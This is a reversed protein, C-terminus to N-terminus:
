TGNSKKLQDYEDKSISKFQVMDGMQILSNQPSSLNFIEIPTRGILNWGGPSPFPYIGTQGGAIAVSGQPVRKRPTQLRPTTLEQDMGGIYPFGPSFGLFYVLYNGSQHRQIIEGESLKSFQVVRQIDNGYNGGYLVPVEVLKEKPQESNQVVDLSNEVAQITEDINAMKNLSFLISSYGPHINVVGHIPNHILYTILTFIKKHTQESIENNLEM